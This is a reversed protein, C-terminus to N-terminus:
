TLARNPANLIAAAQQRPHKGATLQARTPEPRRRTTPVDLGALSVRDMPKENRVLIEPNDRAIDRCFGKDGWCDAGERHFWHWYVDPALMMKHEGLGRIIQRPGALRAVLRQAAKARRAQADLQARIKRRLSAEVMATIDGFIPSIVPGIHM